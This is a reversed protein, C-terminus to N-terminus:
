NKNRTGYTKEISNELSSERQILLKPNASILEAFQRIQRKLNEREEPSLNKIKDITEDTAWFVKPNLHGLLQEYIIKAKRRKTSTKTFLLLLYRTSETPEIGLIRSVLVNKAVTKPRLGLLVPASRKWRDNGFIEELAQANVKLTETDRGLLAPALKWRDNGLINDLAQARQKLTYAPLCSLSDLRRVTAESWGERTDTERYGYIGVSKLWELSEPNVSITTQAEKVM